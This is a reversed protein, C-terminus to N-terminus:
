RMFFYCVIFVILGEIARFINREKLNDSFDAKYVIWALPFFPVLYWFKRKNNFIQEFM